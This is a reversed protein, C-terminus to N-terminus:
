SNESQKRSEERAMATLAGHGRKQTMEHKKHGISQHPPEGFLDVVKRSSIIWKKERFGRTKGQPRQTQGPENKAAVHPAQAPATKAGTRQPGQTRRSSLNSTIKLCTTQRPIRRPNEPQCRTQKIL